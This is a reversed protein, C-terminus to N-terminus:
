SVEDLACVCSGLPEEGGRGDEVIVRGIESGDGVCLFGDAPKTAPELRERRGKHASIKNKPLMMPKKNPKESADVYAAYWRRSSYLAAEAVNCALTRSSWALVALTRDRATHLHAHDM